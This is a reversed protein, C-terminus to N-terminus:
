NKVTQTTNIQKNQHLHKTKRKLLTSKQHLIFQAANYVEKTQSKNKCLQQLNVNNSHYKRNIFINLKSM